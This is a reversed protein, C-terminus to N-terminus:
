RPMGDVPEYLFAGISRAAKADAARKRALDTAYHNPPPLQSNLAGLMDAQQDTFHQLHPMVVERRTHYTPQAEPYELSAAQAPYGKGFLSDTIPLHVNDDVQTAPEGIPQLEGGQEM